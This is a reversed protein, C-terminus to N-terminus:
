NFVGFFDSDLICTLFEYCRSKKKDFLHNQIGAIGFYYKYFFLNDYFHKIYLILLCRDGKIEVLLRWNILCSSFSQFLFFLVTNVEIAAHLPTNGNVSNCINADAGSTLLCKM